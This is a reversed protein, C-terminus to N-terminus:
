FVSAGAKSARTVFRSIAVGANRAQEGTTVAARTVYEAASTASTTVAEWPAGAQLPAFNAPHVAPM